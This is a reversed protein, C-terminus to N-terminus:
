RFLENKEVVKIKNRQTRIFRLFTAAEVAPATLAWESCKKVNSVSLVGGPGTGYGYTNKNQNHVDERSRGKLHDLYM